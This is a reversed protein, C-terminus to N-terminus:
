DGGILEPNMLFNSPYVTLPWLWGGSYLFQGRDLTNALGVPTQGALTQVAYQDQLTPFPYGTQPLMDEGPVRAGNASYVYRGKAKWNYGGSKSDPSPTEINVEASQLKDVTGQVVPGPLVPPNGAKAVDFDVIRQSQGGHQRVTVSLSTESAVPLTITGPDYTHRNDVKYRVYNSAEAVDFAPNYSM